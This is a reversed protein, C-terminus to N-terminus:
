KRLGKITENIEMISPGVDCLFGEVESKCLDKKMAEELQDAYRIIYAKLRKLAAIRFKIDLTQGTAFYDRQRQVIKTIQTKNM